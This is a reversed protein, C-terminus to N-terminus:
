LEVYGPMIMVRVRTIEARAPAFKIPQGCADFTKLELGAAGRAPKLSVAGEWEMPRTDPVRMVTAELLEIVGGDSVVEKDLQTVSSVM